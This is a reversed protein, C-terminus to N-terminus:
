EFFVLLLVYGIIEDERFVFIVKGIKGIDFEFMVIVVKGYYDLFEVERYLEILDFDVFLDWRGLDVVFVVDFVM